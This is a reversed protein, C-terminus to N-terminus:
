TVADKSELQLKQVIQDCIEQNELIRENESHILSVAKRVVKPRNSISKPSKQQELAEFCSCYLNTAQQFTGVFKGNCLFDAFPNVNASPVYLPDKLSAQRAIEAYTIRPRIKHHRAKESPTIQSAKEPQTVPIIEVIQSPKEEVIVLAPVEKVALVLIALEESLKQFTPRSAPDIQLTSSATM